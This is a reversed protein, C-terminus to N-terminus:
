DEVAVLRGFINAGTTWGNIRGHNNGIQFRDGDIRKVIHAAEMRADVVQQELGAGRPLGRHRGRRDLPDADLDARARLGVQLRDLPLPQPPRHDVGVRMDGDVVVADRLM